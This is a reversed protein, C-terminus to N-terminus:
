RAVLRRLVAALDVVDCPKRIFADLRAHRFAPPLDREGYGSMLARRALPRRRAVEALLELGNMRAGMNFDSVVVLPDAAGAAEIIRLADTPSVAERVTVAASADLARTAVRAVFRAVAPQDDVVLLLGTM